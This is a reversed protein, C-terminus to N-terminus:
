VKTEYFLGVVGNSFTRTSILKLSRMENINNCLPKGEHLIVPHVMFHYEDILGLNTFQQVITASGVILMDKGNKKKLKKIEESNIENMIISNKWTIEKLTKSFVIKTATNIKNAMEKEGEPTSPNDGATPWYGEFIKYTVRGLILTDSQNYLDDEYKGLDESFAATVWEMQDQPDSMLGDLTYFETAIIKRM